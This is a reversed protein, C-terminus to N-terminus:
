RRHKEGPGLDAPVHMSCRYTVALQSTAGTSGSSDDTSIMCEYSWSPECLVTCVDSPSEVKIAHM